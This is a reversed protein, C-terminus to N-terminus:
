ILIKDSTASLSPIKAQMLKNQEIVQQLQVELASIHSKNGGGTGGCTGNSDRSWERLEKKQDSKLRDYKHNEYYRLEVGTKGFSNKASGKNDNCGKSILM